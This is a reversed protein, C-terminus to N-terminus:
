EILIDAYSRVQQMFGKYIDEEGEIEIKIARYPCASVCIGCGKCDESIEAGKHNFSIANAPCKGICDGCEVCGEDVEVILGPLRQVVELLSSPGQRLSRHVVCCCECCFCVTLMRKYPIGLTLADVMTHAILPYLGRDLGRQIHEVAEDVDCIRGLSPHIKAAGDGLFLCGLDVPYGKCSEHQRCVCETMIFRSSAQEVLQHLLSYPLVIQNGQSIVENVPIMTAQHIRASFVPKLLWELGPQKGLWLGVKYM